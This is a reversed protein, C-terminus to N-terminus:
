SPLRNRKILKFPALKVTNANPVSYARGPKVHITPPVVPTFLDDAGDFQNITGHAIDCTNESDNESLHSGSLSRNFPM